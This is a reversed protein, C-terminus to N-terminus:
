MRVIERIDASFGHHDSYSGGSSTFIVPYFGSGHLKFNVETGDAKYEAPVTKTVRFVERNQRCSVNGLLNDVIAVLETLAQRTSALPRAYELSVARSCSGILSCNAIHNPMIAIRKINSSSVVKQVTQNLQTVIFFRDVDARSTHIDLIYDYQEKQIMSLIERARREEYTKPQKQGYSRNLDSETFRVNRRFARPNGCVYDVSSYKKGDQQALFEYLKGGLREDGHQEGVILIKPPQKNDM